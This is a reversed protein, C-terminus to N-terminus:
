AMRRCSMGGTFAPWIRGWCMSRRERSFVNRADLRVEWDGEKEPVVYRLVVMWTSSTTWWDAGQSLVVDAIRPSKTNPSTARWWARMGAGWSLTQARALVSTRPCIGVGGQIM